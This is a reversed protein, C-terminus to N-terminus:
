NKKNDKDFSVKKLLKILKINAKERDLSIDDYLYDM